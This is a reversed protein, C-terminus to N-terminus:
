RRALCFPPNSEIRRGCAHEFVQPPPVHARPEPRSWAAGAGMVLSVLGIATAAVLKKM